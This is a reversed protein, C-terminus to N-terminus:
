SEAGCVEELVELLRQPEVPKALVRAAGAQKAQQRVDHAAVATIVVIRADPREALIAKLAAVGDMGPMRIDMLICDYTQWRIAALAEGGTFAGQTGWGALSLVDCLTAVMQRDDDVVLIKGKGINM